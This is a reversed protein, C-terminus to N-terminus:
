SMRGALQPHADAHPRVRRPAGPAADPIAGTAYGENALAIAIKRKASAELQHVRERSVGLRTALTDLSTPNAYRPMCRELFVAREREGLIEEALRLIRKRAKAQDLRLIVDDESAAHDDPLTDELAMADDPDGPQRHLSLMGGELLRLSRAVEGPDLGIRKGVHRYLEADTPEVRERLCARRADTLLRTTMQALKRHAASEPLRVLANRRIYDKIHWRIWGTAYAALRNQLRAPDFRAIATHLGLHGAGVLDLLEVDARRYRSAIAIVLKSHSEWLENLAHRRADQSDASRCQQLLTREREATLNSRDLQRRVAGDVWRNYEPMGQGTEHKDANSAFAARM